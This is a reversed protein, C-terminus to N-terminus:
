LFSVVKLLKCYKDLLLEFTFKKVHDTAIILINGNYMFTRVTSILM